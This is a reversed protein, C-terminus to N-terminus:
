IDSNCYQEIYYTIWDRFCSQTDVLYTKYHNFQDAKSFGRSNEALETLIKIKFNAKSSLFRKDMQITDVIKIKLKAQIAEELSKSLLNCLGNAAKIENNVRNYEDEFNTLFTDKLGNLKAIPDNDVKIKKTTQKFVDLAYACVALAMDVKYESTFTFISKEQNMLDEVSSNLDKLLKYVHGSNFQMSKAKITNLYERAKIFYEETLKTATLVDDNRLPKYGFWKTSSLHIKEDVKLALSLSRSRLPQASLKEIVKQDSAQLLERLIEVIDTEIEYDTPYKIKKDEKTKTVSSMWEEWKTEFMQKIELETYQKGTKWSEDIFKRIHGQIEAMHHKEIKEVEAYHLRKAVLGNCLTKAQTKNEHHLDKIRTEIKHKFQLLTETHDSGHLFSQMEESMSKYSESLIKEEAEKLCKDAIDKIEDETKFNCGEITWKTTNEWELMQSQLTWSWKAYQSDFENYAYVELTNKFSFLFNEQLVAEWLDKVRLKFTELSCRCTQKRQTLKVIATKLTQASESYGTNVPAMPPDGKWLSPFYFVDKCDDFDIVQNFSYYQGECNEVKAAAQTMNDLKDYFKQRGLKSKSSALVASVNQHVFMCGPKMREVKRMRIFAHLATQLTDDLDGTTEGFLNIITTDALGIM